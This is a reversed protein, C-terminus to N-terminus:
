ASPILPRLAESLETRGYLVPGAKAEADIRGANHAEYLDTVLGVYSASLGGRELAASWEARPLEIARVDRGLLEMMTRAVDAPTYRRPGEVHVIRHSAQEEGPALLLEAAVAGVDYASVTPFLKDLPHHLSPLVGTRAAVAMVRTWNEMHEASRLFIMTSPVRRLREELRHYLMTIGTGGDVQAGYDSIALVRDPRAADLAEGVADISRRMEGTADAARPETPCIVQVCEAGDFARTLAAVDRIDAVAIECGLAALPAARAPERVVARVARGARRLAEITTRGVKGTAGLVAFM